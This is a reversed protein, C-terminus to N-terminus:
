CSLFLPKPFAIHFELVLLFIPIHRLDPQLRSKKELAAWMTIRLRPFSSPCIFYLTTIWTPWPSGPEWSTATEQEGLITQESLGEKSTPSFSSRDPISFDLLMRFNAHGLTSKVILPWTVFRWWYAGWSKSICTDQCLWWLPIRGEQAYWWRCDKGKAPTAPCAAISPVDHCYVWCSSHLRQTGVYEKFTELDLWLTESAPAGALTSAGLKESFQSIKTNVHLLEKMHLDVTNAKCAFMCFHCCGRTQSRPSYVHELFGLNFFYGSTFLKYWM